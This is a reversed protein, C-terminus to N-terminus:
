LGALMITAEPPETVSVHAAVPVLMTMWHYRFPTATPELEEVDGRVYVNVAAALSM